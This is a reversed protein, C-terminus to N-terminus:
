IYMPETLLYGPYQDAHLKYTHTQIYTGTHAPPIILIISQTSFLSDRVEQRVCLISYLELFEDYNIKAQVASSPLGENHLDMFNQGLILASFPKKVSVIFYHRANYHAGINIDFNVKFKTSVAISDHEPLIHAVIRYFEDENVVGDNNEDTPLHIYLPFM